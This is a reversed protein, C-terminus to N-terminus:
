GQSAQPQSQQVNARSISPPISARTNQKAAATEIASANEGTPAGIAPRSKPAADLPSLSVTPHRETRMPLLSPDRTPRRSARRPAEAMITAPAGKAAAASSPPLCSDKPYSIGLSSSDHFPQFLCRTNLRAPLSNSISCLNASLRWFPIVTYSPFSAIVSYMSDRPLSYKWPLLTMSSPVPVPRPDMTAKERPASTTVAVSLFGFTSSKAAAFKLRFM